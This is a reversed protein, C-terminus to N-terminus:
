NKILVRGKNVDIKVLVNVDVNYKQKIDLAADGKDIAVFVGVVTVGIKKFASLVAKLSGGTSLVDDIIIVRDGKIIGNIFFRSKSYGTVQEVSVEDPQDYQRKRIITFPKNMKISLVSALHIGMAELTVIKDFDGTKKVRLSIESIVENLLKPDVCPIGDTLPNIIYHYDGKKIVKSDLLSKKFVKLSM